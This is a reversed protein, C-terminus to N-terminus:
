VVSKRDSPSRAHCAVGRHSRRCARRDSGLARPRTRGGGSSGGPIRDAAYPNRVPGYHPNYSTIGYGMEHLNTKGLTIAGATRLKAVVTADNPPVWNELVKLGGTTRVGKTDIADKVALPVGALLGVEEGSAIARDLRDADALAEDGVVTIFANLGGRGDLAEIRALYLTILERCSIKRAKIAAAIELASQSAVEWGPAAAAAPPPAMIKSFPTV